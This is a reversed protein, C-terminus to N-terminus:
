APLQRAYAGWQYLEARFAERRGVDPETCTLGIGVEVARLVQKQATDLPRRETFPKSFRGGKTVQAGHRVGSQLTQMRMTARLDEVTYADSLVELDGAKPRAASPLPFEARLEEERRKVEAARVDPPPLPPSMRSGGGGTSIFGGREEGEGDDAGEMEWPQPHPAHGAAVLAAEAEEDAKVRSRAARIAQFVAKRAAAAKAKAATLEAQAAAMAAVTHSVAEDAAGLMAPTVAPDGAQAQAYLVDRTQRARGEAVVADRFPGGAASAAKATANRESHLAKLNDTWWGASHRFVKFNEPIDAGIRQSPKAIEGADTEPSVPPVEEPKLMVPRFSLEPGFGARMATKRIKEVLPLICQLFLPRGHNDEKGWLQLALAYLDQQTAGAHLAGTEVAAAIALRWVGEGRLWFNEHYHPSGNKGLFESAAYYDLDEGFLRRLPKILSKEQRRRIELMQAFRLGGPAPPATLVMAFPWAVGRARDLDFQQLLRAKEGRAKEPGCWPCAHRNCKAPVTSQRYNGSLPDVYRLVSGGPRPRCLRLARKGRTEVLRREALDPGEVAFDAVKREDYGDGEFEKMLATLAWARKKNPGKPGWAARQSEAFAAELRRAEADGEVEVLERYRLAVDAPTPASKEQIPRDVFIGWVPDFVIGERTEDRTLAGGLRRVPRPPGTRLGPAEWDATPPAFLPVNMEVRPPPDLILGQSGAIKQLLDFLGRAAEPTVRNLHVADIHRGPPSKATPPPTLDIVHDKLDLSPGTSSAPDHTPAVGPVLGDVEAPM